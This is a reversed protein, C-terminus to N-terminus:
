SFAVDHSHHEVHDIPSLISPSISARALSFQLSPVIYDWPLFYGKHQNGSGYDPGILMGALHGNSDIIPGGADKTGPYQFSGLVAPATADSDALYRTMCPAHHVHGLVPVSAQTPDFQGDSFVDWGGFSHRWLPHFNAYDIDSARLANIEVDLSNPAHIIALPSFISSHGWQVPVPDRDGIHLWLDILQRTGTFKDYARGTYIHENRTAWCGQGIYTAMALFTQTDADPGHRMIIGTHLAMGSTVAHPAPDLNLSSM